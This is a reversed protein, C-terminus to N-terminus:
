NGYANLFHQSDWDVATPGIDSINIYATQSSVLRDTIINCTHSLYPQSSFM